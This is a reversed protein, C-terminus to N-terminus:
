GTMKRRKEELQVTEYNTNGCVSDSDENNDVDQYSEEQEAVVPPM